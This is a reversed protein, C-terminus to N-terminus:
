GRLCSTFTLICSGVYSHFHIFSLTDSHGGVGRGMLFFLPFFFLLWLLSTLLMGFVDNGAPHANSHAIGGIDLAHYRYLVAVSSAAGNLTQFILILSFPSLFPLFPEAYNRNMWPMESHRTIPQFSTAYFISLAHTFSCPICATCSLHLKEGGDGLGRGADREGAEREGAERRRGGSTIM